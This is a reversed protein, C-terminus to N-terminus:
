DDQGTYQCIKARGKTIGIWYVETYEGCASCRATICISDTQIAANMTALLEKADCHVCKCTLVPLCDERGIPTIKYSGESLSSSYLVSARDEEQDVVVGGYEPQLHQVFTCIDQDTGLKEMNEVIYALKQDVDEHINAAFERMVGALRVIFGDNFM